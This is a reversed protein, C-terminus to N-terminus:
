AVLAAARRLWKLCLKRVGAPQPQCLPYSWVRLQHLQWEETCGGCRIWLLM